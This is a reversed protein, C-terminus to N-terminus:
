ARVEFSTVESLLRKAADTYILRVFYEGPQDLDGAKFVYRVYKNPPFVGQDPSTIQSGPVTPVGEFTTLDPRIFSLLLSQANSVNYNVNLNLAIGYETVNLSM